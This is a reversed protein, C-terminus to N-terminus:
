VIGWTKHDGLFSDLFHGVEHAPVDESFQKKFRMMLKREKGLYSRIFMGAAMSSSKIKKGITVKVENLVGRLEPHIVDSIETPEAIAMAKRLAYHDFYKWDEPAKDIRMLMPRGTEDVLNRLNTALRINAVTRIVQQDYIRLIKATNEYKLKLGMELGDKITPLSRPKQFPTRMQLRRAYDIKKNKPIDWIHPIYDTIFGLEPDVSKLLAYRQNLYERITESWARMKPTLKGKMLEPTDQMFYKLDERETESLQREMETFFRDSKYLGVKIDSNWQYLLDIAKERAPSKKSITNRIWENMQYLSRKKIPLRKPPETEQPPPAITEPPPPEGKEAFELAKQSKALDPAFLTEQTKGEEFLNEQGQMEQQIRRQSALQKRLVDKTTESLKGRKIREEIYKRDRELQKRREIAETEAEIQKRSKPTVKETGGFITKQKMPAVSFLTEQTREAQGLGALIQNIEQELMAADKLMSKRTERTLAEESLALQIRNLTRRKEKLEKSLEPFTAEIGTTLGKHLWDLRAPKKKSVKNLQSLGDMINLKADSIDGHAIGGETYFFQFLDKEHTNTLWPYKRRMSGVFRSVSVIKPFDTPKNYVERFMGGADLYSLNLLNRVNTENKLGPLGQVIQKYSEGQEVRRRVVNANEFDTQEIRALNGSEAYRRAQQETTGKPLVKYTAYEYKGKSVGMQRTHGSIVILDGTKPDSWLTPEVWEVPNFRKAIADVMEPNVEERPQFRKTDMKVNKVKLRVIPLAKATKGPEPQEAVKKEKPLVEVPKEPSVTEQAPEVPKAKVIAGKEPTRQLGKIQKVQDAIIKAREEGNFRVAEKESYGLKKLEHIQQLTSMRIVNEPTPGEPKGEEPVVVATKRKTRLEKSKALQFAQDIPKIAGLIGKRREIWAEWFKNAQAPTQPAKGAWEPMDAVFKKTELIYERAKEADVRGKPTARRGVGTTHLFAMTGIHKVIQEPHDIYHNGVNTIADMVKMEPNARLTEYTESVFGEAGTATSIAGIQLLYAGFAKLNNPQTLVSGGARALFPFVAGLSGGLGTHVMWKKFTLGKRRDPDLVQGAGSIGSFVAISGVVTEHPFLLYPIVSAYADVSGQALRWSQNLPTDEQWPVEETYSEMAKYILPKDVINKITGLSVKEAVNYAGYKIAEWFHKASWPKIARMKREMESKERQESTSYQFPVSLPPPPVVQLPQKQTIRKYVRPLEFGEPPHLTNDFIPAATADKVEIFGEPPPISAEPYIFGEPPPPLKLSSDM